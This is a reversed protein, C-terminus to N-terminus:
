CMMNSPHPKSLLFHSNRTKCFRCKEKSLSELIRIKPDKWVSVAVYFWFVEEPKDATSILNGEKLLETQHINYDM